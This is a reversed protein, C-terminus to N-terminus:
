ATARLTREVAEDLTHIAKQNAEFARTIQMLTIMSRMPSVNSDELYGPILGPEDLNPLDEVNQGEPLRWGIGDYILTNPDDVAVVRIRGISTEGQWVEGFEDIHPDPQSPVVQIPGDRGDIKQGSANTLRGTADVHLQGNRMLIPREQADKAVIFGDGAFSVDLNRDTRRSTANSFDREERSVLPVRKGTADPGPKELTVQIAKYGSQQGAALNEAVSTQWIELHRMAAASSYVNM